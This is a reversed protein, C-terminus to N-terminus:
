ASTLNSTISTTKELDSPHVRVKKADRTSDFAQYPLTRGVDPLINYDTDGKLRAYEATMSFTQAMKHFKKNCTDSLDFDGKATITAHPGLMRLILYTYHPVAM